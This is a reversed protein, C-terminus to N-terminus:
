IHILSLGWHTLEHSFVQAPRNDSGGNMSDRLAPESAGLNIEFHTLNISGLTHTEPLKTM